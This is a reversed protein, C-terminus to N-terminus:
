PVPVDWFAGCGTDPSEAPREPHPFGCQCYVLISGTLKDPTRGRGLFRRRGKHPGLLGYAVRFVSSAHCNPCPGTVTYWRGDASRVVAPSGAPALEQERFPTLDHAPPM